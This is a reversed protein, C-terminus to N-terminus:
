RNEGILLDAILREVPAYADSLVPLEDMSTGSNRMPEDIRYWTRAIGRRAQVADPWSEGNTATIVYTVRTPAEPLRDVWVAVQAFEQELANVVSKVLRPDPFADVVNMALMGGNTLRTKVLQFFDRTVLHFPIAVDHFVDGVVVDFRENLGALARRADEHIVRMGSTDVYLADAATETVVPDLEAVTISSAPSLARVARPQTYAGGGAFFYSLGQEYRPGFHHHILEDMAHVYPAIMLAPDTAHNISHLLHDLVLGRATGQPADSSHDAVRICFYGSERECPAKLSNGAGLAAVLLLGTIGLGVPSRSGMLPLALLGLCAATGLIVTYTGFQQILWYGAAFTGVISGVAALAHMRGVVHGTRPDLRLALTTLLPTVIGLLLAPLFFLISALLFSTGLLDLGGEVVRGALSALLALSIVCYVGAAILVWGAFTEGAGHDARIGGIWNGLSLGALIVGIISTWTYISVGIYPALLRGAVIELVLLAASSLFIIVSYLALRGRIGHPFAATDPGSHSPNHDDTM